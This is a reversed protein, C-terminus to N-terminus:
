AKGNSNFINSLSWILYGSSRKSSMLAWKKKSPFIIVLWACILRVSEHMIMLISAIKRAFKGHHKEWYHLDARHREIYFRLPTNASSGGGYHIAQAYPYFVVPWGGDNFRKCWDMDEGYIFFNEDLLGIDALATKRVVWYCGNIIDVKKITDHKWYTMLYGGFLKSSPCITDLAFVRCFINWISPFGMCSRQRNGDPGIIQPGTVGIDINQEMFDYLGKICNEKVVVDSNILYLYKGKSSKIGINNAKAFGLNAENCIVKVKPFEKKVMQVSDDSSANDVVIIESKFDLM